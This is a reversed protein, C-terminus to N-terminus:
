KSKEKVEIRIIVHEDDAIIRAWDDPLGAFVNTTPQPLGNLSRYELAAAWEAKAYSAMDAGLPVTHEIVRYVHERRSQQGM